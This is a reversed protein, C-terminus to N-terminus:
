STTAIPSSFTIATAMGSATRTALMSLALIDFLRYSRQFGFPAFCASSSQRDIMARPAPEFAQHDAVTKLDFADVDMGAGREAQLGVM